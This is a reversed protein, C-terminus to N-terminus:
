QFAEFRWGDDYLRFTAKVSRDQTLQKNYGLLRVLGSPNRPNILSVQNLGYVEAMSDFARSHKAYIKSPHFSLRVEALAINDGMTTVGTVELAASYGVSFKMASIGNQTA